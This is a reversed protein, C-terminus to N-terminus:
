SRGLRTRGMGCRLPNGGERAPCPAKGGPQQRGAPQSARALNEGVFRITMGQAEIPLSDEEATSEKRECQAIRNCLAVPNCLWRTQGRGGEVAARRM